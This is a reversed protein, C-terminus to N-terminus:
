GYKKEGEQDLSSELAKLREEVDELEHAKMASEIITKSAVVRAMAQARPNKAIEVLTDVAITMSQRLRATAHTVSQRKAEQYKEDFDPKQMWRWLTAESIGAKEAAGRITPETLLALIAVDQKRSQKEGHGKGKM